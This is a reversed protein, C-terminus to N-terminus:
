KRRREAWFRAIFTSRLRARAMKLFKEHSEIGPEFTEVTPMFGRAKLETAIMKRYARVTNPGLKRQIVRMETREYDRHRNVNRAAEEQAKVMLVHALAGDRGKVHAPIWMGM